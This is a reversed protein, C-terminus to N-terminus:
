SLSADDLGEVVTVEAQEAAAAEATATAAAAEAEATATAAAAEAEAAAKAAAEAAAQEAAKAQETAAYDIEPTPTATPLAKVTIKIEKVYDGCKITLKTEGAAVGDIILGYAKIDELTSYRLKAVAENEIKFEIASVDAEAPEITLKNIEDIWKAAGADLEVADNQVDLLKIETVAVPTSEPATTPEATPEAPESQEAAKVTITFEKTVEGSKVTLTTEGEAVGEIVLGGNSAIDTNNIKAVAEDAITFEVATWDTEEPVDALKASEITVNTGMTVEVKNDATDVAPTPEETVTAEPDITAEETATAEPDVTPEETPEDVVAPLIAKAAIDFTASKASGDMALLTITVNADAALNENITVVGNEDVTAVSENSSFWQVKTDAVSEPLLEYIMQASMGAYLVNEADDLEMVSYDISNEAASNASELSMEATDLEYLGTAMVANAGSLAQLSSGYSTVSFGSISAEDVKPQVPKVTITAKAGTGDNTKVTITANKGTNIANLDISQYTIDDDGTVDSKNSVTVYGTRNSSFSFDQKAGAPYARGIITVPEGIEVEITQGTIDTGKEDLIKVSGAAPYVCVKVPDSVIGSGDTASAYVTTCAEYTLKQATVTVTATTGKVKANSVKVISTDNSAWNLKANGPVPSEPQIYATLTTKNGARIYYADSSTGDADTPEKIEIENVLTNIYITTTAKKGSGDAATCTITVKGNKIATVKGTKDVEAYKTNSSKWTVENSAGDPSTIASLQYTKKDEDGADMGITKGNKSLSDEGIITVGTVAPYVTIAYEGQAPTQHREDVDTATAYITVPTAVRVNSGGTVKGSSNVSAISPNSSKWTVKQTTANSPKVTATLKISKGAAVSKSGSIIIDEVVIKGTITVKASQKTGDKTTATITTTGSNLFTVLGNADVTAIKPKSSTWTLDPSATNPNVEGTLQITKGDGTNLDIIETITKNTVNTKEATEGDETVRPTYYISVRNAVPIVRFEYADFCGSGDAAEAIVYLTKPESVKRATVKGDSVTAYSSKSCEALQGATTPEAECSVVSWKVKHNDANDPSVVAKFTSSKGNALSIVSKGNNDTTAPVGGIWEIEVGTSLANVVNVKATASKGGATATVTVTGKALGTVTGAADVKATNKSSVKWTVTQDADEPLVTATFAITKSKEVAYLKSSSVATGDSLSLTISNVTPTIRIAQKECVNSGDAACAVVHVYTVEPVQKARVTGSSVTAYTSAPCSWPDDTYTDCHAAIVKWNIQKNTPNTPDTITATFKVTKGSTVPVAASGEPVATSSTLSIAKVLYAVNVKITSSKKSDDAATATITVTGTKTGTPTVKGNEDVTAINTNGSKWTVEQSAGNEGDPLIKAYLPVSETSGAEIGIQSPCNTLAPDTCIDVSKAAPIITIKQDDCIREGDKDRTNDSSCVKVTLETKASFATNATLKGSSKITVNKNVNGDADYVFFVANKNEAETDNDYSVTWELQTSTGATLETALSNITVEDAMSGVKINIKASKNKGKVTIATTGTNNADATITVTAGNEDQSISCKAFKEYTSKCTFTDAADAPNTVINLTMEQSNSFGITTGTLNEASAGDGLYLYIRSAYSAAGATATPILMAIVLLAIIWLQMRHKKM